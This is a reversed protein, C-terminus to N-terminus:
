RAGDRSRRVWSLRSLPRPSLLRRLTPQAEARLPVSQKEILALVSAHVYVRADRVGYPCCALDRNKELDSGNMGAGQCWQPRDMRPDTQRRTVTAAYTLTPPYCPGRRQAGAEPRGYACSLCRCCSRAQAAATTELAEARERLVDVVALSVKEKAMQLATKGEEDRLTMDAGARLLRLVVAPQHNCHAANM